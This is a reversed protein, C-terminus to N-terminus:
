NQIVKNQAIVGFDYAVFAFSSLHSHTLSCLEARCVAREVSHLSLRCFPLLYKFVYICNLLLFLCDLYFLCLIQASM